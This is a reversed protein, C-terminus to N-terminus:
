RSYEGMLETQGLIHGKMAKLLKDKSAGSALDLVEDLAYLKFFYRHTGSPPCPGGYSKRGWSNRGHRSGDPLEAKPPVDEPLTRTKATLNYLVWHVWTGVPADPDDAIFAFSKTGKPSNKWTLPPSIDKGDCTYREPISGKHTFVTSTLEFAESQGRKEQGGYASSIYFNSILFAYIIVFVFLSIIKKM